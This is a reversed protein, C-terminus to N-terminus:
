PTVDINDSQLTSTGLSALEDAASMTVTVSRAAAHVQNMMLASDPAVIGDSSDM